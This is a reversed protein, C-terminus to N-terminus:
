SRAIPLSFIFVSGRGEESGVWIKGNMKEIIEKVIFLGLGTGQIDKTYDTQVRYFKEFLKAQAEKSIGLGTDSVHTILENATLENAITITGPHGMYKIANGVLNMTVEKLRDADALARPLNAPPEYVMRVQAKDALSQLESLVSKIPEAIDTPAVKIVLKGNESRSVELLDNVLQALRDNSKVVKEIFAKATDDVTGALGQLILTLYGKMAAVPTRLEHAAIFVFENKLEELRKLGATMSNFAAGLEELEDHTGIKVETDFKGEAVLETGRELTRVPRVILNALLIGAAIVAAIAAGLVILDKYLIDNVSADAEHAPWEALIGWGFQPVFRGAAVVPNGMFNVYRTQGDSGSFDKGQIVEKVIGMGSVDATQAPGNVSSAIVKGNRDVLYLYGTDGLVADRIAGEVASLAFTGTLIFAASGSQNKVPAAITIAPDSGSFDVEDSVYAKGGRVDAFWSAASMDAFTSTPAGQPYAASISGVERGDLGVLSVSQLGFQKGAAFVQALLIPGTAEIAQANNAIVNPQLEAVLGQLTGRVENLKEALLADELNAVDVRHSATLSFWSLAGVFVIPVVSVIAIVVFLKNRLKGRFHTPKM